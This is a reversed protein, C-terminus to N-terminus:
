GYLMMHVGFFVAILLILPFIIFFSAIIYRSSKCFWSPALKYADEVKRRKGSAPFGLIRMFMVTRMYGLPFGTFVVIETPSFHPEKFYTELVKRPMLIHMVFTFLFVLFLGSFLYLGVGFLKELMLDM